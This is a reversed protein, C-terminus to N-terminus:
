SYRTASVSLIIRTEITQGGTTTFVIEIIYRGSTSPQATFQVANGAAVSTDNITVASSNYRQNTVTISSDCQVDPVGNITEGTDLLASMDVSINRTEATTAEHIQTATLSM